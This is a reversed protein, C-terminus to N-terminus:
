NTFVSFADHWFHGSSIMKAREAYIHVCKELVNVEFTMREVDLRKHFESIDGLLNQEGQLLKFKPKSFVKQLKLSYMHYSYFLNYNQPLPVNIQTLFKM